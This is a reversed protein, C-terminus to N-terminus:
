ADLEESDLQDSTPALVNAPQMATVTAVQARLKEQIREQWKEFFRKQLEGRGSAPKIGYKAFVKEILEPSLDKPDSFVLFTEALNLTRTSDNGFVKQCIRLSENLSKIAAQPDTSAQMSYQIWKVTALRHHPRDYKSRLASEIYALISAAEKNKKQGMAFVALRTGFVYAERSAAGSEHCIKQFTEMGKEVVEHPTM